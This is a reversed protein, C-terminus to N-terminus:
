RPSRPPRPSLRSAAGGCEPCQTQTALLDYGCELCRGQRRRWVRRGYRPLSRVALLIVAFFLTNALQGAFKVGFPVVRPHDDLHTAFSLLDGFRASVDIWSPTTVQVNNVSRLEGGLCPLPLGCEVITASYPYPYGGENSVFKAWQVGLGHAAYAWAPNSPWGESPTSPWDLRPVHLNEPTRLDSDTTAVHMPGVSSFLCATIAIGNALACSLCLLGLAFILRRLNM